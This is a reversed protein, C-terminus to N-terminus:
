RASPKRKPSRSHSRASSTSARPQRWGSRSAICRTPTALVVASVDPDRLAEELDASLPLGRERAFPKAADTDPEVVRVISIVDSNGHVVDIMKRGWWGLGVMAVNVM